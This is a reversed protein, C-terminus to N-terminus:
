ESLTSNDPQTSDSDKTKNRASSHVTFCVGGILSWFLICGTTIASLSFAASEELGVTSFVWVAAMERVGVGGPTTPISGIAAICPFLAICEALSISLSMASAVAFCATATLTHALLSLAGTIILLTPRQRFVLFADYMRRLMQVLRSRQELKKLLPILEFLDTAFLLLFGFPMLAGTTVVVHWIHTTGPTSMFLEKNFLCMICTLLIISALGIVRDILISTVAETSRNSTLRTAYGAKIVDGGVSGPMVMSFFHGILTLNLSQSLPIKIDLARLIINWRISGIALCIFVISIAALLPLPNNAVKAFESAIDARTEPNRIFFLILGVALGIKLCAILKKRTPTM